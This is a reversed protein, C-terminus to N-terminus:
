NHKTGEKVVKRVSQIVFDVDKDTMSPFIPLTLIKEYAEEAIPCLGPGTGFSARYYPHLHVPIYHVNVGIGIERLKKFVENRDLEKRLRVIYLHFAHTVGESVHLPELEDSGSFARDYKKAIQNRLEIWAPLKRLQSLGLACQIDTLRYNFGLDVMEYFWSGQKERQHYDTTIGHSRFLRVRDALESDDTTVMGGEGTTIPKVPHFSFTNLDALSGVARGKYTAGLAHCADDVLALGHEKALKHLMDYNCPQGAYDVSIIAKTRGTIKAEVQWPDLLLTGPDIDAFIPTGGQFVVCNATAAFTMAPLIVEDGSKIDLAYMAAHLAATGSSVAVAEKAGVFQGFAREFEGVRPGTTLWESRLVEVVARIDDEDLCQRGYPIMADKDFEENRRCKLALSQQRV